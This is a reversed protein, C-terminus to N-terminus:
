PRPQTSPVLPLKLTRTELRGNRNTMVALPTWLRARVLLSKRAISAVPHTTPRAARFGDASVRNCRSITLARPAPATKCVWETQPVM